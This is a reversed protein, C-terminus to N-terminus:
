VDNGRLRKVFVGNEETQEFGLRPYLEKVPMNKASEKYIGYLAKCGKAKADAEVQGVMEDELLRGMVRCSMVFEKITACLGKTETGDSAESEAVPEQGYKVILAAVLGNDGFKDQVRYFYVKQSADTLIEDLEEATHRVTTLNFQNTKNLLQLLRDKNKEPTELTIVTELSKLYDEFSGSAQRLSERKENAAYSETKSLDEQTYVTKLFYEKGLEAAFAPLEEVKIKGNEDVPFDPVTVEPFATKVGEREVPNDDLFVFSSLGLNLRKAIRELMVPKPDWCIEMVAFDTIRLVMHPHNEILELADAQNNKSAIVLLVGAQKLAAIVRQLNKYALGAHDESLEIPMKDHEGALNGWLTNDLDLVLVKKQFGVGKERKVLQLIEGAISKQAEMSHPIKGMYWMKESFAAKGLETMLRHYSFVRVNSCREILGQLQGNWLSELQFAALPNHSVEFELGRVFADSVFFVRSPQNGVFGEVSAFWSGITEEWQKKDMSHATLEVLDMVMFTMEPAAENYTSAPNLLLGLENGYGEAQYLQIGEQKAGPGMLRLVPNMNINSLLAITSM